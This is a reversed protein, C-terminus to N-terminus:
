KPVTRIMSLKRENDSNLFTFTDIPAPSYCALLDGIKSDQVFYQSLLNGNSTDLVNIWVPATGGQPPEGEYAIAIRGQAIKMDILKDAQKPAVLPFVNIVEGSPSLVFLPGSPTGRVFYVKGDGATGAISGAIAIEYPSPAAPNDQKDSLTKRSIDKKGLDVPTVLRGADDFIGSFPIADWNGSPLSSGAIFFRRSSIPVFQNLNVHKLELKILSKYAGDKDFVVIRYGAPVAAVVYIDSETAFYTMLSANPGLDPVQSVALQTVKSGDSAIRTLTNMGRSTAPTFYLNFGADCQVGGAIMGSWQNPIPIREKIQLGRSVESTPAFAFLLSLSFVGLLKM